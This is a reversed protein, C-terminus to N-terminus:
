ASISPNHENLIFTLLFHCSLVGVATGVKLSCSGGPSLFVIGEPIVDSRREKTRERKCM